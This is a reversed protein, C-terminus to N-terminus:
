QEFKKASRGKIYKDVFKAIITVPITILVGVLISIVEAYSIYISAVYYIVTIISIYIFAYGSFKIFNKRWDSIEEM